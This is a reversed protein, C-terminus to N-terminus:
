MAALHVDLLLVLVLVLALVSLVSLVPFPSSQLSRISTSPASLAAGAGVILGVGLGEEGISLSGGWDSTGRSTDM